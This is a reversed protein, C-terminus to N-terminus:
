LDREPAQRRLSSFRKIRPNRPLYLVLDFAECRGTSFRSEAYGHHGLVPESTRKSAVTGMRLVAVCKDFRGVNVRERFAPVVVRGVAKCEGPISVPHKVAPKPGDVRFHTHRDRVLHEGFPPRFGSPQFSAMQVLRYEGLSDQQSGAVAAQRPVTLMHKSASGGRPQMQRDGVGDTTQRYSDANDTTDTLIQLGKWPEPPQNRQCFRSFRASRIRLDSTVLAAGAGLDRSLAWADFDM